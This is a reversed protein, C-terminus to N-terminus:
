FSLRRLVGRTDVTAGSRQCSRLLPSRALHLHGRGHRAHPRAIHSPVRPRKLLWRLTARSSRRHAARNAGCRIPSIRRAGRPGAFRELEAPIASLRWKASRLRPPAHVLACAPWADLGVGALRCVDCFKDLEDHPGVGARHSGSLERRRADCPRTRRFRCPFRSWFVDRRSTYGLRCRNSDDPDDGGAPPTDSACGM